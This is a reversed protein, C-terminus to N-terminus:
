KPPPLNQQQVPTRPSLQTPANDAPPPPQYGTPPPPAAAAQRQQAGYRTLVDRLPDAGPNSAQMDM